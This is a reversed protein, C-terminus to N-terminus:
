DIIWLTVCSVRVIVMTGHDCHHMVRSIISSIMLQAVDYGNCLFPSIDYLEVLNVVSMIMTSIVDHFVSIVM